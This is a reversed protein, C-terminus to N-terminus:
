PCPNTHVQHIADIRESLEPTITVDISGIDTALQEMSTAGIITSTM